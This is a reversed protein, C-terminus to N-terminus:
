QLSVGVHRSRDLALAIVRLATACM